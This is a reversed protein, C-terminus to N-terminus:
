KAAHLSKHENHFYIREACWGYSKRYAIKNNKKRESDM